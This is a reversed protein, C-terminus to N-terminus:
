FAAAKSLVLLMTPFDTDGEFSAVALFGQLIIQPLNFSFAVFVFTGFCDNLANLDKSLSM